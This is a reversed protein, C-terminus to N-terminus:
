ERIWEALGYAALIQRLRGSSRAQKIGADLIRALRTATAGTPSYGAYIAGTELCGASRLRDSPTGRPRQHDFVAKDELFGDIKHAELSAILAALPADSEHVVIRTPDSQHKKIYFDLADDYAYGRVVGLRIQALSPMGSFSWRHAADVYICIESYGLAIDGLHLGGAESRSVGLVVDYRGAAVAALAEAWPAVTYTVDYGAAAFIETALEVAYGPRSAGPTCTVPCWADAVLRITPREAASAAPCPSAALLTAAALPALRILRRM